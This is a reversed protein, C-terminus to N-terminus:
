MICLIYMNLLWRQNVRHQITRTNATLPPSDSTIIHRRAPSPHHHTHLRTEESGGGVWRWDV